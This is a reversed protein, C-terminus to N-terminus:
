RKEGTKRERNKDFPRYKEDFLKLLFFLMFGVSFGGLVDTFFHAGLYIRSAGVLAVLVCILTYVAKKRATLFPIHKVLLYAIIPYVCAANMSHGSPFSYSTERVLPEFAPRAREIWDKLGRNLLRECLFMVLLLIGDWTKTYALLVAGVIIILPLLFASSGLQTCWLMVHNLWPQRMHAAAQMVTDDFFQVANIHVVATLFIFLVFLSVPKYM